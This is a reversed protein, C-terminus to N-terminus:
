TAVELRVGVARHDTLKRLVEAAIQVGIDTDYTDVRLTV